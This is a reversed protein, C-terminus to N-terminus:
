LRWVKHQAITGATRDVAVELQIDTFVLQAIQLEALQEADLRNPLGAPDRPQQTQRRGQPLFSTALWHLDDAVQEVRYRVLPAGHASATGVNGLWPSSLNIDLVLSPRMWHQTVFQGMDKCPCGPVPQKMQRHGSHHRLKPQDLADRHSGIAAHGAIDRQM